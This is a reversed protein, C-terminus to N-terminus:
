QQVMEIEKLNEPMSFDDVKSERSHADGKENVKRLIVRLRM